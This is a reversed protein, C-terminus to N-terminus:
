ASVTVAAEVEAPYMKPAVWSGKEEDWTMEDRRIYGQITGNHLSVEIRESSVGTIWLVTKSDEFLRVSEGFVPERNAHEEIDEQKARRRRKKGNSEESNTLALEGQARHGELYAAAYDELTNLEIQLASPIGSTFNEDPEPLYPTTIVYPSNYDPVARKGTIVYGKRGNRYSISVSYVETPRDDNEFYATPLEFIQPFHMKLNRLTKVFMPEPPAPSKLSGEMVDVDKLTEWELEVSEDSDAYRIKKFRRTGESM